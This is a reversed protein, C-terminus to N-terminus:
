NCPLPPRWGTRSGGFSDHPSIDVGPAPLQLGLTTTYQGAEIRHTISKIIWGSNSLVRNCIPVALWEGCGGAGRGLLHFPNIFVLSVRKRLSFLPHFSPDGVVTLDASISDMIQFGRLMADNAEQNIKSGRKGELNDHNESQPISRVLGAGPNDKSSMGRFEKRGEVQGNNNTADINQSSIGGGVNSIATFNWSFKPSFSIVPSDKGGNVVYFAVCEGGSGGQDEPSHDEMLILRGGPVSDDFYPIFARKNESRWGELWRIITRIKDQGNCIWKGKPGKWANKRGGSNSKEGYEFGVPICNRNKVQCIKLEKIIPPPPNSILDIIADKLYVGAEGDGGIIRQVAGQTGIEMTNTGVIEFIFKGSDFHTEVANIHMYATYSSIVSSEVAAQTKCNANIWGFRVKLQYPPKLCQYHRTMNAVFREMSGGQEDHIVIRCDSSEAKGYEFSTIVATHPNVPFSQNSVTIKAGQGGGPTTIVAEVWPAIMSGQVPLKWPCGSSGSYYLYICSM